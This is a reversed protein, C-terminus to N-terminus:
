RAPPGWSSISSSYARETIRSFNGSGSSSSFPGTNTALLIGAGQYYNTPSFNTIETEITWNLSPNISQLIVPAHYNSGSYYLDLRREVAIHYDALGHRAGAGGFLRSKSQCNGM